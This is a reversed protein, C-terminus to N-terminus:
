DRGLLRDLDPSGRIIDALSYRDLVAVFAHIAEQLPRPLACGSEIVCGVCDILKMDPETHRVVEGLGITDAPRALMVGGSRGRRSELYGAKVLDHVLKTLHNQSIGYARALESIPVTRGSHVGLYFLVRFAFDTYRTLRM